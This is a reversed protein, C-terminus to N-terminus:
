GAFHGNLAHKRQSRSDHRFPRPKGLRADPKRINECNEMSVVGFKRLDNSGVGTMGAYRFAGDARPRGSQVADRM